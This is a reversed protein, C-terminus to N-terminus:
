AACGASRRRRLAGRRQRARQRREHRRHPRNTLAAGGVISRPARARNRASRAATGRRRSARRLAAREPRGYRRAARMAGPKSKSSKARRKASACPRSSSAWTSPKRRRRFPRRNTARERRRQGMRENQRTPQMGCIDIAPMWRQPGPGNVHAGADLRRAAHLVGRRDPPEAVRHAFGIGPDGCRSGSLGISWSEVVLLGVGAPM